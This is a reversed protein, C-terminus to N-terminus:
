NSKIPKTLLKTKTKFYHTIYKFFQNEKLDIENLYYALQIFFYAEKLYEKEYVEITINSPTELIPKYGFSVNKDLISKAFSLNWHTYSKLKSTDVCEIFLYNLSRLVIENFGIGKKFYDDGKINCIAEYYEGPTQTIKTVNHKVDRRNNVVDNAEDYSKLSADNIPVNTNYFDMLM